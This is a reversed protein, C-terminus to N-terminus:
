AVDRLEKSEDLRRKRIAYARSLCDGLNHFYLRYSDDDGDREAKIMAEAFVKAQDYLYREETPLFRGGCRNAGRHIFLLHMKDFVTGCGTCYATRAEKTYMRRKAKASM